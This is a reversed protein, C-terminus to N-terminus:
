MRKEIESRIFSLNSEILEQQEPWFIDPLKDLPTWVLGYHHDADSPTGDIQDTMGLFYHTTIWRSKGLDYRERIGLIEFLEVDCLGAEEHIERKAAEKLTEGPEVGGKPLVYRPLGRERCFAILIENGEIRTIVGGASTRDTGGNRVYWSEDIQKILIGKRSRFL